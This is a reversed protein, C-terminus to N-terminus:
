IRLEGFVRDIGFLRSGEKFIAGSTGADQAREICVLTFRILLPLVHLPTILLDLVFIDHYPKPIFHPLNVPLILLQVVLVEVVTDIM